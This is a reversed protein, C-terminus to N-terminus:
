KPAMPSACGPPQPAGYDNTGPPGGFGGRIGGVGPQCPVTPVTPTTGAPDAQAQPAVAVIMGGMVLAPAVIRWRLKMTTGGGPQAMIFRNM